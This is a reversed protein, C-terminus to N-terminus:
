SLEHASPYLKMRLGEVGEATSWKCTHFTQSHPLSIFRSCQSELISQLSRPCVTGMKWAMWVVLSSAMDPYPMVSPTCGGDGALAVFCHRWCWSVLLVIESQQYLIVVVMEDHHESFVAGLGHIYYTSWLICLDRRNGNVTSHESLSAWGYRLAMLCFFIYAGYFGLTFVAGCWTAMSLFGEM